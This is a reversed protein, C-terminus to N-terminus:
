RRTITYTVPHYLFIVPSDEVLFRQFDLYIKKREEQDLVRRGDELLKDIRQSEKSNRYNIFNTSVQTSHWFIYQDPDPPIPQIALLSQFNETPNNSVQIDTKVGIPEWDKKIKDAITLLNSTTILKVSLNNRQEKTLNNLLEKARAINYNYQKVQPNFAWSRPSIPSIAREGGFEDKNIAYALAQRLSKDSLLTDQNNIFVGVYLDERVNEETSARKWNKLDKPNVIEELRDVEGLKFAARGDEETLYFKYTKVKQTNTNVLKIFGPFRSTKSTNFKVVRWEGAGLLGKKFAPKTVVSPFPAFPDQLSFKITKDDIIESNADSFKYNIDKARVKTGDQWEYDGLKFIWVRGANAVEWSAALGPLVNDREDLKTLGLSIQNQISLPLDDASFRGVIGITEGRDFVVLLPRAFSVVIFILIGVLAGALFLSKFKALFAASFRILYRTNFM